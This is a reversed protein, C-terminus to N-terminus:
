DKRAGSLRILKGNVDLERRILAAFEEPTNTQAELGHKNLAARVEPSGVIKGIAAHLRTIIDKPVAAPAAMGFWTAREYGPLGAESITPISPLSSARKSGTVALTRLKGSDRLPGVSSVSPFSIEIHGAATAMATEASGKYPVHIIDVKGMLKFLEGMLHSSSGIGSSGYSLKGPMSRALALLEKVSRAPVSPHVSLVAMGTAVLSIPAIDRELDYPLKRLAPQLTDAAAMMLLTYGDPASKAVAETALSGGAGGRNDVVLTQGVNELMMPAILRAIVDPASGPSFGILLRIPKSPYGQAFAAPAPLAACAAIIM